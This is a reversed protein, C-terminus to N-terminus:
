FTIVHQDCQHKYKDLYEIIHRVVTDVYVKSQCLYASGASCYIFHRFANVIVARQQRSDSQSFKNILIDLAGKEMLATRGYVDLTYSSLLKVMDETLGEGLEMLREIVDENKFQERLEFSMQCLELVIRKREKKENADLFISLLRSALQRGTIKVSSRM